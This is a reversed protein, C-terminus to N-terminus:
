PPRWTGAVAHDHSHGRSGAMAHQRVILQCQRRRHARGREPGSRAERMGRARDCLAEPSRGRGPLIRGRHSGGQARGAQGRAAVLVEELTPTREDAFAPDFWSGIDLTELDSRRADWLKLPSGATKMFDSDHFVAIEGDATEQVDIEVFDAGADIADRVAAM